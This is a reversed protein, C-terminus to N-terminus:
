VHTVKGISGTVLLQGDAEPDPNQFVYDVPPAGAVLTSTTTLSSLNGVVTIGSTVHRATLSGLNGGVHVEGRVDGYIVAKTLDKGAVLDSLVHGTATSSGVTLSKLVGDV